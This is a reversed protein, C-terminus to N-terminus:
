ANQFKILNKVSKKACIAQITVKKKQLKSDTHYQQFIINNYFSRVMGWVDFESSNALVVIGTKQIPLFSIASGFGRAEGGHEILPAGYIDGKFLGFAYPITDGDNLKGQEQISEIVDTGGVKGTGLNGIWKALDLINSFVAGSGIPYAQMDKIYGYAHDPSYAQACDRIIQMYNDNVLTNKMDLQDFIRSKMWHPFSQGTVQEIISTLLSYGTNNYAFREGPSFELKTQNQVLRHVDKITYCHQAFRFLPFHNHLGSTHYILHRIRIPEGFDPVFSLHERIDDELSIKDEHVLIAIAFATFQKAASGIDFITHPTILIGHEINASGAAHSCLLEGNSVVAVAIGPSDPKYLKDCQQKIFLSVENQNM